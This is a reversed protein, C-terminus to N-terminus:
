WRGATEVQHGEVPVSSTGSQAAVSLGRIESGHEKLNFSTAEALKRIVQEATRRRRSM